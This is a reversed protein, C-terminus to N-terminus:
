TGKILCRVLVVQKPYIALATGAGCCKNVPRSIVRDFDGLAWRTARTGSLDGQGFLLGTDLGGKREARGFKSFAVISIHGAVLAKLNVWLVHCLTPSHLPLKPNGTGIMQAYIEWQKIGACEPFRYERNSGWSNCLFIKSVSVIDSQAGTKFIFLAVDVDVIDSDEVIDSDLCTEDKLIIHACSGSFLVWVIADSNLIRLSFPHSSGYNFAKM